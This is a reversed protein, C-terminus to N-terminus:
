DIETSFPRKIVSSTGSLDSSKDFMMEVAFGVPYYRQLKSKHLNDLEDRELYLRCVFM